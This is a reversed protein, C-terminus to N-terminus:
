QTDGVKDFHLTRHFLTFTFKQTLSCFDGLSANSINFVTQPSDGPWLLWPNRLGLDFCHQDAEEVDTTDDVEFRHGFPGSNILCEMHLTQLPKNISHPALSYLPPSIASHKEVVVVSWCTRRKMDCNKAPLPMQAM